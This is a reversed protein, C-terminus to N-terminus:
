TVSQIYIGFGENPRQIDTWPGSCGFNVDGGCGGSQLFENPPPYGRKGGEDGTYMAVHGPNGAYYCIDGKEPSSYKKHTFQYAHLADDAMGSTFLRRGFYCWSVFGSCDFNPTGAGGWQYELGLQRVGREFAENATFRYGLEPHEKFNPVPNPM